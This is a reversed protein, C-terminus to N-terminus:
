ARAMDNTSAANAARAKLRVAINKTQVYNRLGERGKERGYGSKGVGGFPTEVGGAFWENIFVQGARLSGAMNFAGDIDRSFIGAVLGYDTGNAMAVPDDRDGFKSISLVPGFVEEQCIRMGLEVNSYITPEVFWGARAAENGGRIRRAGNQEAERCMTVARDRQKESIMSGMTLGPEIHGQDVGISISDALAALREVLQDHVSEHVIARSLASCIQGANYFAGWRVSDVVQDLDADRCIIAASKGGLELVCPVVNRAAQSAISIGTALSGTFVIQRVDPDTCLAAGAVPGVGCIINLAGAPLGAAEAAYGLLGISLPALEPSKVVCCNGTALAPAISRAAIELPFNWPVIQASVGFPELTTFDVYDAGLPISMGELADTQNAYYEFLRIAGKVEIVAEWHPKGTEQSLLRAAPETNASLYNGMARIMRGREVPRLRTLHGAEHCRLASAVATRVDNGDALAQVAFNEATAPNEIELWGAGGDCWRGDVFNRGRTVM